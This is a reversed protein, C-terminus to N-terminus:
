SPASAERVLDIWRRFNVFATVFGAGDRHGVGTRVGVARLEEDHVQIIRQRRTVCDETVHSFSLVDYVRNRRSFRLAAIPRSFFHLHFLNRDFILQDTGEVSHPLNWRLRSRNCGRRMVFRMASLGSRWKFLNKCHCTNPWVLLLRRRCYVARAACTGRKSGSGAFSGSKAAMM